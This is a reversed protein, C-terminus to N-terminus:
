TVVATSELPRSLAKEFWAVATMGHPQLPLQRGKNTESVGVFKICNGAEVGAVLGLSM